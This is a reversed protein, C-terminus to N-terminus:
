PVRASVGAQRLHPREDLSTSPSARHLRPLGEEPSCPSCLLSCPRGASAKHDTTALAQGATQCTLPLSAGLVITHQPLEGFLQELFRFLFTGVGARCGVSSCAGPLSSSLRWISYTSDARAM